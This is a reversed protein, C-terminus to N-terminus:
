SSMVKNFAMNRRTNRRQVEFDCEFYGSGAVSKPHGTLLRLFPSPWLRLVSLLVQQFDVPMWASAPANGSEGETLGSSITVYVPATALACWVAFMEVCPVNSQLAAADSATVFLCFKACRLARADLV